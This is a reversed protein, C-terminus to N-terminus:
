SKSINIYNILVRSASELTTTYLFCRELDECAAFTGHGRVIVINERALLPAVKEAVEASAIANEVDIVKVGGPFYYGGEADIPKVCDYKLSLAIASPPHSHIVATKSSMEYISRHVVLERSATKDTVPNPKLSTEVLDNITLNGLMSGSRTIIVSDPNKSRVSINGSHSNNIGM